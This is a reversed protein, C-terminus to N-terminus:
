LIEKTTMHEAVEWSATCGHHASARVVVPPPQPTRRESAGGLTRDPALLVRFGTVRTM